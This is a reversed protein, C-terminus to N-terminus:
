HGSKCRCGASLEELVGRLRREPFQKDMQLAELVDNIGDEQCFLLLLMLPLFSQEKPLVVIAVCM